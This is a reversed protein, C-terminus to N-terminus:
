ETEDSTELFKHVMRDVRYDDHLESHGLSPDHIMQYDLQRDDTIRRIIAVSEPVAVPDGVSGISLIKLHDPIADKNMQLKKLARSGPKLDDAAPDHNTKFYADNYIGGFPGGIAILKGIDPSTAKDHYQEIYNTAVLSGMSHSVLNVTNMNFTEKMQALVKALWGTTKEVSARNNRFIVQISVPKRVQGNTLEHVTLEGTRSVEYILSTQGWDYTQDFRHLMHAFSYYTGKYGHVFVTPHEITKGSAQAKNLTYLGFAAGGILLIVAVIGIISKAQM